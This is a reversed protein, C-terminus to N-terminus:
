WNIQTTTL